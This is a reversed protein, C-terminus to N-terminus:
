ATTRMRRVALLGLLGLGGFLANPVPVPTVVHHIIGGDGNALFFTEPGDNANDIVPNVTLGIRNTTTTFDTALLGTVNFLYGSTGVGTGTLASTSANPTGPTFTASDIVAGANNYVYLTFPQNIDIPSSGGNIQNVQLVLAINTQDISAASLESITRTLTQSAGTGADGTKVDSSGDWSVSGAETTNNGQAQLTIVTLVAGIGTGTLSITSGDYTITAANAGVSIGFGIALGAGIFWKGIRM